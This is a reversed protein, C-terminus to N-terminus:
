FIFSGSPPKISYEQKEYKELCTIDSKGLLVNNIDIYIDYNVIDMFALESFKLCDCAVNMRNNNIENISYKLGLIALCKYALSYKSNDEGIKGSNVSIYLNRKLVLLRKLLDDIPDDLQMEKICALSKNIYICDGFYYFFKYFWDNFNILEVIRMLSHELLIPLGKYFAQIKHGIGTTLFQYDHIKEKLICNDEFIPNQSKKNGDKDILDVEFILMRGEFNKMIRFFKICEDVCNPYLIDGPMLVTSYLINSYKLLETLKKHVGTMKMTESLRFVSIQEMNGKALELLKEYTGDTSCNDIAIIKLIGQDVKQNIACKITAAIENVCNFTPIIIAIYYDKNM